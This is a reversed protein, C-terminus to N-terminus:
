SADTDARRASTRGARMWLRSELHWARPSREAATVARRCGIRASLEATLASSQAPPRIRRALLVEAFRVAPLECVWMLKPRSRSVQRLHGDRPRQIRGAKGGTGQGYNRAEHFGTFM